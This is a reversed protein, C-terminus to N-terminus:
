TDVVSNLPKVACCVHIDPRMFIFIHLKKAYLRSLISRDRKKSIDLSILKLARRSEIELM